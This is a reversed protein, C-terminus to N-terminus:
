FELAKGVRWEALIIEAILSWRVGKNGACTRERVEM